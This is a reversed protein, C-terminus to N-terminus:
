DYAFVLRRASSHNRNACLYERFVWFEFGGSHQKAETEENLELRLLWEFMTVVQGVHAEIAAWQEDTPAEVFGPLDRITALDAMLQPPRILVFDDPGISDREFPGHLTPVEPSLFRTGFAASRIYAEVARGPEVAPSIEVGETLCWGYEGIGLLTSEPHM